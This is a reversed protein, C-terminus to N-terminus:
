STSVTFYKHYLRFHQMPSTRLQYGSLSPSLQISKGFRVFPFVFQFNSETMNLLEVHGKSDQHEQRRPFLNKSTKKNNSLYFVQLEDVTEIIRKRLVVSLRHGFSWRQLSTHVNAVRFYQTVQSPYSVGFWAFYWNHISKSVEKKQYLSM